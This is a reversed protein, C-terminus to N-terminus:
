GHAKEKGKQRRWQTRRFFIYSLLRAGGAIQDTPLAYVFATMDDLVAMTAPGDEFVRAWAQFRAEQEPIM